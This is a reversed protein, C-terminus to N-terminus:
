QVIKSIASRGFILALGNLLMNGSADITPVQIGFFNQLIFLGIMIGGTIYTKKGDLINLM